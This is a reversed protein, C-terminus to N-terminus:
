LVKMMQKAIRELVPVSVSNGAQKYLASDAIKPLRFDDPFGQIRFCERPTLKRIGKGDFVIPVNHGGMGMNATLTPCVGKKNKRVYQRRWQYVENEETVDDRLRDYLPKGNYYYKDDVSKELIDSIKKTLPIPEPFEFAETKKPDKFGVIYIRERNQPVNGYEMSNLVKSKVTYGLERLTDEIVRYTNGGDHSKLNKVNELLFGTPQKDEIIRAVDFFLNGRGKADKFGHRYGAISFAQCPFGGLVFDADPIDSTSIKTIDEVILKSTRFNEDYTFKCNKEFDNSFATVFGANEFGLRIGGVGAFLDITKWEKTAMVDGENTSLDRYIAWVVGRVEVEDRYLPLISQNAPQLRFGNKEKFLKKLTCQEEDIIAVVTQGNQASTQRKIVVIDNDFIGDELMSDGKVRLAYFDASAPLGAVEIYGASAEEIVEIPAGGAIEGLVPVRRVNSQAPSLSYGLPGKELVGESTLLKLHHHVSSVSKLGVGDCIQQITPFTGSEDRHRHIYAVIGERTKSM